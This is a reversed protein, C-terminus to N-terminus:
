RPRARAKKKKPRRPKKQPPKVMAKIIKDTLTEPKKEEKKEPFKLDKVAEYNNGIGCTNGVGVVVVKGEGRTRKISEEILKIARDVSAGIPKTLPSIAEEISMKIAYAELPIKHEMAASEIKAKEPGPDGIAAGVGEAVKGTKEGELKLSADVTIIKAVKNDRCVKKVADGLKGLAAGPGNAKLVMVQHGDVEIEHCIVDKAVERGNGGKVMTAAVLPGISDGIPKGKSIAEVGKMQAKAIRKIMPLSMQILMAMQFNGTKKVFEVYHRVTKAIINLGIGGKLLSIMNARWVRDAGPALTSSLNEFRDEAEDLLYEIKKLIGYPDLDVPGILFFELADEVVQKQEKDTEAKGKEKATKLIINVAKKTYGELTNAVAEMEAIMRYLMYKPYLLIFSFFLIMWLVQGVWNQEFLPM